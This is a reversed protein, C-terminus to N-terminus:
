GCTIHVGRLVVIVRVLDEQYLTTIVLRVKTITKTVNKVNSSTRQQPQELMLQRVEELTVQPRAQQELVFQRIEEVAAEITSM